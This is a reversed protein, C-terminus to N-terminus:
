IFLFGQSVGFKIASYVADELTDGAVINKRVENLISDCCKNIAIMNEGLFQETNNQCVMVKEKQSQMQTKMIAKKQQLGDENHNIVKKKFEYIVGERLWIHGREIKM